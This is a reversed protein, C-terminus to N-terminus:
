DDCAALWRSAVESQVQAASWDPHEREIAATMLIRMGRNALLSMELRQAPTKSQLIQVVAGDIPEFSNLTRQLRSMLEDHAECM